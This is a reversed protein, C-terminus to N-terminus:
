CNKYLCNVPLFRNLIGTYLDPGGPVTQPSLYNTNCPETCNQVRDQVLKYQLSPNLTSLPNPEIAKKTKSVPPSPCLVPPKGGGDVEGAGMSRAQRWQGRTGGRHPPPSPVLVRSRSQCDAHLKGEGDKMYLDITKEKEQIPLCNM